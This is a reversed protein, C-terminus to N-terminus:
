RSGIELKLLETLLALVIRHRWSRFSPWSQESENFQTADDIWIVGVVCNLEVTPDRRRRLYSSPILGHECLCSYSYSYSDPNRNILSHKLAFLAVINRQMTSLKILQAGRATFLEVIVYTGVDCLRWLKYLHIFQILTIQTDNVVCNVRARILTFM